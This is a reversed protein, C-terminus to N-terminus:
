LETVLSCPLQTKVKYFDAFKESIRTNMKENNINESNVYSLELQEIGKDAKIKDTTKIKLGERMFTYHNLMATKAVM